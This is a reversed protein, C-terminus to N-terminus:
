MKLDSATTTDIFQVSERLAMCVCVQAKQEDGLVSTRTGSLFYDIQFFYM